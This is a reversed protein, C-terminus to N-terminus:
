TAESRKGFWSRPYFAVLFAFIEVRGLLMDCCLTFKLPVPLEASAIGTSLGVTGTASVVEFLADLSDYGAAVFPIWSLFIVAFFLGVILNAEYIETSELRHRGLSPQLIAHPPSGARVILLLFLRWIVLLRWVKIGGASSGLGGGIFMALVLVLKTVDHLKQVDLTSFGATSQASIGLLPAQQLATGVPMEQLWCLSLFIALTTALALAVVARLQPSKGVERWDGRFAMEYLVLPVAGALCFVVALLWAAPGGPMGALSDDRPAFGGTSVAAFAYTVADFLSRSAFLLAVIAIVTITSYVVLARRAHVRTNGVVSEQEVGVLLLRRATVGPHVVLAVSFIVIGLGGYWQMWARTFLFSLSRDEVTTTTTLGTTTCASVSEFWADWFSLGESMFPFAMVLSTFLFIGVVLIMAENTQVHSTASARALLAGVVAVGFAVLGYCIALWWSTDLVAVFVSPLVLAALVVCYQGFYKRLVPLRVAYILENSQKM